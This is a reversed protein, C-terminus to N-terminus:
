PVESSSPSPASAAPSPASSVPDPASPTIFSPLHMPRGESIHEIMQVVLPQALAERRAVPYGVAALDLPSGSPQHCDTCHRPQSRKLPHIRALLATRDAPSLSAGRTLYERVTAATDPHALIPRGSSADRLALKSGYEGRLHRPLSDRITAFLEAAAASGPRVIRVHRAMEELLPAGDSERGAAELLEALRHQGEASGQNLAEASRSATIAEYALLAAPAGRAKGSRLDYWTLPLPTTESKFHCVGCHLSTAHMNLFARVEKRRSHPLAAHCGSQTCNNYEDPQIWGDARHYHALPSRPNENAGIGLWESRRTHLLQEDMRTPIGVIQAPTASPFMLTVVLYRLALFSVWATVAIVGVAYGREIAGILARRLTKRSGSGATQTKAKAM